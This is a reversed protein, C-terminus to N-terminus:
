YVFIKSGSCLNAVPRYNSIEDKKGKKFVPTIVSMQWQEPLRNQLYIKNFLVSLPGSLIEIGDLLIRQPIRDCGEANKLKIEKMAKIVNETTM